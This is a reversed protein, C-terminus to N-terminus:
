IPDEPSIEMRDEGFPGHGGHAIEEYRKSVSETEAEERNRQEQEHMIHHPANLIARAAAYYGRLYDDPRKARREESPNALDELSKQMLGLLLPIFFDNYAKSTLLFVLDRPDAGSLDEASFVGEISNSGSSSLL